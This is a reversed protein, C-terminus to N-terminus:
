SQDMVVASRNKLYFMISGVIGILIGPPCVLIAILFFLVDLIEIFKGLLILDGTIQTLAYMLNHLIAFVPFGIVSVILLIVYPRPKRWPHIFVLILAIIGLYCLIVGPLNDNIGVVFAAALLIIGIFLFILTTKRNSGSFLLKISSKM